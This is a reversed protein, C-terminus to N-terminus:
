IHILSLVWVKKEKEKRQKTKLKKNQKTKLYSVSTGCLLARRQTFQKDDYTDKIRWGKKRKRKKKKKEKGWERRTLALLALLSHHEFLSRTVLM